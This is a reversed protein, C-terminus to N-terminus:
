RSVLRVSVTRGRHRLEAASSRRARARRQRRVLRPSHCFTAHHSPPFVTFSRRHCNLSSARAQAMLPFPPAAASSCNRLLRLSAPFHFSASPPELASALAENPTSQDPTAQGTLVGAVRPWGRPLRLRFRDARYVGDTLSMLARYSSQCHLKVANLSRFRPEVVFVINVFTSARCVM